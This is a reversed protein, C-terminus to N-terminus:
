RFYLTLHKFACSFNIVYWKINSQFTLTPWRVADRYRYIGASEKKKAVKRETTTRTQRYLCDTSSMDSCNWLLTVKSSSAAGFPFHAFHSQATATCPSLVGYLVQFQLLGRVLWEGNQQPVLPIERFFSHLHFTHWSESLVMVTWNGFSESAQLTSEASLM